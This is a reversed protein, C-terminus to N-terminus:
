TVIERNKRPRGPGRRPPQNDSQAEKIVKKATRGLSIKQALFASLADAAKAQAWRKRYDDYPLERAAIAEEAGRKFEELWKMFYPNSRLQEALNAEAVSEFPNVEIQKM